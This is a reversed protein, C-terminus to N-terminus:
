VLSSCIDLSLYVFRFSLCFWSSIMYNTVDKSTFGYFSWSTISIPRASPSYTVTGGPKLARSMEQQNTSKNRSHNKKKGGAARVSRLLVGSAKFFAVLFPQKSQPGSRGVLGASKISLSRGQFYILWHSFTFLVPHKLLKDSSEFTFPFWDRNSKSSKVIM